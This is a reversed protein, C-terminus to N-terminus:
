NQSRIVVEKSETHNYQDTVKCTIKFTSQHCVSWEVKSGSGKFTGYTASWNYTLGDGTVNATITTFANVKVLTDAAVLSTFKLTSTSDPTTTEKKSCSSWLILSFTLFLFIANKMATFNQCLYINIEM